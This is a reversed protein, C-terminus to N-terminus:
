ILLYKTVVSVTQGSLDEMDRELTLKGRLYPIASELLLLLVSIGTMVLAIIM